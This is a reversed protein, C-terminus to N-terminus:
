GTYEKKVEELERVLDDSVVRLQDLLGPIAPDEAKAAEEVSYAMKHADPDMFTGISGKYGHAHFRVKEFDGQDFNVRIEELKQRYERIFDDIVEVVVEKDYYDFMERFKKRDIM